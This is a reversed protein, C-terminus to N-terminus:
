TLQPLSTLCLPQVADERYRDYGSDNDIVNPYKLIPVSAAIVNSSVNLLILLEVKLFSSILVIPARFTEEFYEQIFQSM